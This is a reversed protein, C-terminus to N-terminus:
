SPLNRRIAEQEVAFLNTTLDDRLRQEILSVPMGICGQVILEYLLCVGNNDPLEKMKWAGQFRRFDGKLLHFKLQRNTFDEHLEIQVKASFKLGMLNQSGVQKLQVKSGERSILKSSALNPIFDSLKEYDTLVAWLSNVSIKTTLQAALRRTGHPLREMTQEITKSRAVVGEPSEAFASLATEQLSQLSAM